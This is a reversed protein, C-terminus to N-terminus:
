LLPEQRDKTAYLRGGGVYGMVKDEELLTIQDPDATQPIGAFQEATISDVFIGQRRPEIGSLQAFWGKKGVIRFATWPILRRGADGLDVELYRGIYEGTDVWLDSVTGAAKDDAGYVTMGRPDDDEKAPYFASAVRLPRLKPEGHLDYDPHNARQAYSAAGVQDAMPDGTPDHPSGEARFAKKINIEEREVPNSAVEKVTDGHKLLFMKPASPMGFIGMSKPGRERELPFGERNSERQLYYILGFFFIWFAYLLMQAVDIYGTIAGVEQM